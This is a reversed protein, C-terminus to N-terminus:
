VFKTHFSQLCVSLMNHRCCKIEFYYFEVMTQHNKFYRTLVNLAFHPNLICCLMECVFVSYIISKSPSHFNTLQVSPHSNNSFLSTCICCCLYYIHFRRIFYKFILTVFTETMPPFLTLGYISTKSYYTIVLNPDLIIYLQTCRCMMHHIYSAHVTRTHPLYKVVIYMISRVCYVNHTSM